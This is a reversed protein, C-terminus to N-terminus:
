MTDVVLFCLATFAHQQKRGEKEGGTCNLIKAPFPTAM